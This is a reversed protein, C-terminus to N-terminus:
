FFSVRVLSCWACKIHHYTKETETVCFCGYSNDVRGTPCFALIAENELHPIPSVLVCLEHRKSHLSGVAFIMLYFTRSELCAFALKKQCFVTKWNWAWSLFQILLSSRHDLALPFRLCPGHLLLLKVLGSKPFSPFHPGVSLQTETMWGWVDKWAETRQEWAWDRYLFIM